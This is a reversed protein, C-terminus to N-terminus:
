LLGYLKQPQRPVSVRRVYGRLVWAALETFCSCSCQSVMHVCKPPCDSSPGAETMETLASHLHQWIIATGIEWHHSVGGGGWHVRWVGHPLALIGREGRGLNRM